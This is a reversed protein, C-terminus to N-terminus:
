LPSSPFKLVESPIKDFGTSKGNKASYVAKEVETRLISTNLISNDEYLPDQMRDELFSKNHLIQEYFQNDFTENNGNLNYLNEFESSWKQFVFSEDTIINESDDYVAVKENQDM